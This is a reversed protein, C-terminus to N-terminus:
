DALFNKLQEASPRYLTIHTGGGHRAFAQCEFRLGEHLISALESKDRLAQSQCKVAGSRVKKPSAGTVAAGANAVLDWFGVPPTAGSWGFSIDPFDEPDISCTISVSQASHHTLHNYVYAGETKREIKLGPVSSMLASTVADCKKNPDITDKSGQALAPSSLMLFISAATAATLLKV